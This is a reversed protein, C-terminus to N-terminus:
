VMRRRASYRLCKTNQTTACVDLDFHFEANLEDFLAQPTERSDSQSSFHVKLTVPATVPNKRKRYAKQRCAHSCTQADRRVPKFQRHCIKCKM